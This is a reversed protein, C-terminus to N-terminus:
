VINGFSSVSKVSPLVMEVFHLGAGVTRGTTAQMVNLELLVFLDEASHSVSSLLITVNKQSAATKMKSAALMQADSLPIARFVLLVSVTPLM